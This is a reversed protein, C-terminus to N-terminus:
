RRGVDKAVDHPTVGFKAKFARRFADADRYGVQAAVVRVPVGTRLLEAARALRNHLRWQNPTMGTEARFQREITRPSVFASAALATLSRDDHPRDLLHGAVVLAEASRPLPPAGDDRRRHLLHDVVLSQVDTDTRLLDSEHQVLALLLQALTDDVERVAGPGLRGIPLALRLLLPIVVSGARVSLAHRVGAPIVIVREAGLVHEVDDLVVRTSGDVQWLLLHADFHVRSDVGVAPLRLAATPRDHGIRDRGAEDAGTRDRTSVAGPLTAM